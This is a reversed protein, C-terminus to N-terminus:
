VISNIYNTVSAQTASIVERHGKQLAYALVCLSMYQFIGLFLAPRPSEITVKKWKQLTDSDECFWCLSNLWAEREKGSLFAAHTEFNFNLKEVKHAL